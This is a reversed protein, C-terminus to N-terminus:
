HLLLNKISGLCVVSWFIPLRTQAVSTFNRGVEVVDTFKLCSYSTKAGNRNTHRVVQLCFRM